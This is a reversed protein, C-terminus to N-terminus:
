DAPPAGDVFRANLQPTPVLCITRRGFLRYRNQATWRYAADRIPAPVVAIVRLWRWPRPMRAVVALAADSAQRPHGRDFFLFTSPHDPNVGHLECLARGYASQAATFRIVGCSDMQIVLQVAFACLNCAGDFVMVGDPEGIRNVLGSM